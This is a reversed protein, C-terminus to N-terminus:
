DMVLMLFTLNPLFQLKHQKTNGILNIVLFFAKDTFDLVM